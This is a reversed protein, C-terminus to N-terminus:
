YALYVAAIPLYHLGGILDASLLLFETLWLLLQLLLDINFILRICDAPCNMAKAIRNRTEEVTDSPLVNVEVVSLSGECIKM